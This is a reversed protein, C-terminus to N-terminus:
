TCLRMSMRSNTSPSEKQSLGHVGCPVNKRMVKRLRMVKLVPPDQELKHAQAGTAFGAGWEINWRGKSDIIVSDGLHHKLAIMAMMAMKDYPLRNTKWDFSYANGYLRHLALEESRVDVSFAVCSRDRRNEVWCERPCLEESDGKDCVCNYNVGNFEIRDYEVIPLSNPRGEPGVVKIETRQILTRIDKFAADLAARDFDKDLYMGHGYGM